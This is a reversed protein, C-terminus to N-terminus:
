TKSIKLFCYSGLALTLSIVEAEADRENTIELSRDETTRYFHGSTHFGNLMSGSM